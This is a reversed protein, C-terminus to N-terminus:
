RHNPKLLDTIKKVPNFTILPVEVFITNWKAMSGNWLGPLEMALLKEGNYSKEAIFGAEEDCFDLLNFKEGNYDKLGCVIDVPNFHTGSKFKMQQDDNSQDIQASEVIQLSEMNAQKVWFPGGGPEGENKVMGCVRIPRNLLEVVEDESFSGKTGMQYLLKLGEEKIEVGKESNRLLTFAREQYSLLLGAFAKKYRITDKRLHEPVINDINKIFVLDYPQDNLNRLLAGHGAPRFLLDGEDNRFPDHTTTSAITDTSPQQESFSVLFEAEKKLEDVSENIHSEFAHRHTPSITFHIAVKDNKKGYDIGEQLHEQAATRVEDDYAHFDLLGKPLNKYNLGSENLLVDLVLNHKYDNLVQEVSIGTRETVKKNLKKFFAFESLGSFFTDVDGKESTIREFEERTGNFSDVFSFLDKFMRSAAGSAPVFKLVEVSAHEYSQTFVELDETSLKLIGNDVTAPSTIDPSQFGKKFRDLQDMVSEPLIGKQQIQNFDKESFMKSANM